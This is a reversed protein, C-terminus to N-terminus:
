QCETNGVWRQQTEAGEAQKLAEIIQAQTHSRKSM